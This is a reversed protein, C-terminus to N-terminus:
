RVGVQPALWVTEIVDALAAPQSLMPSHASDLEFVSTPRSSIADIERIFRRQLAPRVARDQSCTVYSHPVAGFREPTVDLPQGPVGIPGDVSILDLAARATGPEVDAYLAQRLHEHRSPDRTDLRLAGIAAFDGTFSHRLLDGDNEPTAIYGAAPLGAVPAFASVYVLHEFLDPELQAALTAVVGHMSHALVVCPAGGGIFRIQELLAHAASTATVDALPSPETAFTEPAFPRTRAAEPARANLGHGQVDVAVSPIGRAALHTTVPSWVWSGHWFGHVLIVTRM